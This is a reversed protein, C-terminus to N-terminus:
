YPYRFIQLESLSQYNPNPVREFFYDKNFCACVLCLRRDPRGCVKFANEGDLRMFRKMLLGQLSKPTALVDSKEFAVTASMNFRQGTGEGLRRDEPEVGM